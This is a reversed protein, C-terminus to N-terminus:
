VYVFVIEPDHDKVNWIETFNTWHKPNRLVGVAVAVGVGCGCGCQAKYILSSSWDRSYISPLQDKYKNFM